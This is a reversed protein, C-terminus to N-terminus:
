STDTIYITACHEAAIATLLKEESTQVTPVYLDSALYYVGDVKRM